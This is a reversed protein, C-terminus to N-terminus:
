GTMARRVNTTGITWLAQFGEFSRQVLKGDIKNQCTVDVDILARSGDELVDGIRVFEVVWPEGPVDDISSSTVIIAQVSQVSHQRRETPCCKIGVITPTTQGEMITRM